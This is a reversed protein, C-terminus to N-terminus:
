WDSSGASATGRKRTRISEVALEDAIRGGVDSATRSASPGAFLICSLDILSGITLEFWLCFSTLPVSSDTHALSVDEPLPPRSQYNELNIQMFSVPDVQSSLM